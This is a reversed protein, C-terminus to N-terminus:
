LSMLNVIWIIGVIYFATLLLLKTLQNQKHIHEWNEPKKSVIGQRDHIRKQNEWAQESSAHFISYISLIYVVISLLALFPLIINSYSVLLSIFADRM